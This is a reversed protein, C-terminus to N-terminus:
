ALDEHAATDAGWDHGVLWAVVMLGALLPLIAGAPHAWDPRWVTWLGLGASLAAAALGDSLGRRWAARRRQAVARDLALLRENMAVFALDPPREAPALNDALFTEFEEDTM